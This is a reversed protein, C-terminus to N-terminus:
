VIERIEGTAVDYVFARVEDTDPVVPDNKLRAVDERLDDDLDRISRSAWPPRAGTEKQIEAKFEDDGFNLLGCETHHLLLISRTGLKRQSIALSRIADDTIVGGANRLVHVQGESLGFLKYVDIRADMCTLIAVQLSPQPPLQGAFRAPHRLARERLHDIATV